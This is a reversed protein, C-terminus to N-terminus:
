GKSHESVTARLVETKPITVSSLKDTSKVTKTAVLNDQPHSEKWVGADM